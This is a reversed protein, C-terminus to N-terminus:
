CRAGSPEHPARSRRDTRPTDPPSSPQTGDTDAAVPGPGTQLPLSSLVATSPASVCPADVEAFRVRKAPTIEERTDSRWNGTYQSHTGEADLKASAPLRCNRGGASRGARGSTSGHPPGHSSRGSRRERGVNHSCAARGVCPAPAPAAAAQQAPSPDPPTQDLPTTGPNEPCPPPPTLTRRLPLIPSHTAPNARPPGGEQAQESRGWAPERRGGSPVPPPDTPGGTRATRPPAPLRGARPSSTVLEHPAPSSPGSAIDRPATGGGALAPRTSEGPRAEGGEWGEGKALAGATGV